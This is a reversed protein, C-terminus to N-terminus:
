QVDLSIIARPSAKFTYSYNFDKVVTACVYGDSQETTNVAIKVHEPNGETVEAKATVDYCPTPLTGVVTYAWTNNGQYSYDLTFNGNQLSGSTKNNKSQIYLYTVFAGALIIVIAIAIIFINKRKM